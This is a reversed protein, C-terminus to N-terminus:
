GIRRDPRSPNIEHEMEAKEEPSNWPWWPWRGSTGLHTELLFEDPELCM